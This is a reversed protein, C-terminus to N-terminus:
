DEGDDEVTFVGGGPATVKRSRLKKKAAEMRAERAAKDKPSEYSEPAKNAKVEANFEALAAREDAASQAQTQRAGVDIQQVEKAMGHKGEAKYAGPTMGAKDLDALVKGGGYRAMQERLYVLKSRRREAQTDDGPVEDFTKLYDAGLKSVPGAGGGKKPAFKARLQMKYLENDRDIQAGKDMKELGAAREAAFLASRDWDHTPKHVTPAPQPKLSDLGQGIAQSGLAAERLKRDAASEAAAREQAWVQYPKAM